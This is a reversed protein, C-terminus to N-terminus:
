RRSRSPIERIREVWGPSAFDDLRPWRTACVSLTPNVFRAALARGILERDSRKPVSCWRWSRTADSRTIPDSPLDTLRSQPPQRNQEAASAADVRRASEPPPAKAAFARPEGRARGGGIDM